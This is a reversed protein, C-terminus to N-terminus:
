RGLGRNVIKNGPHTEIQPPLYSPPVPIFFVSFFFEGTQDMSIKKIFFFLYIGGNWTNSPVTLYQATEKIPKFRALHLNFYKEALKRIFFNVTKRKLIPLPPTLLIFVESSYM